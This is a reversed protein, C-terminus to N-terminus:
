HQVRQMVKRRNTELEAFRPDRALRRREARTLERLTMDDAMAMVHGCQLCAMLSGPRPRKAGFIGTACELKTGCQLCTGQMPTENPKTM